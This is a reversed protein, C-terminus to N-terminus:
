EREWSSKQFLFQKGIKDIYFWNEDDSIIDGTSVLKFTNRHRESDVDECVYLAIKILPSTEIIEARVVGNDDGLEISFSKNGHLTVEYETLRTM